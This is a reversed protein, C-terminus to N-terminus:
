LRNGAHLCSMSSGATRDFQFELGVEHRNARDGRESCWVVIGKVYYQNQRRVTIEQGVSVPNSLYLCMGSHSINKVSGVFIEGPVDPSDYDIEQRIGYRVHMRREIARM